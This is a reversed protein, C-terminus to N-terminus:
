KNMLEKIKAFSARFGDYYGHTYADGRNLWEPVGDALMEEIAKHFEHEKTKEDCYNSTEM